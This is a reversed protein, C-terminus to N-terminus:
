IQEFCPFLTLPYMQLIKVVPALSPLNIKRLYKIGEPFTVFMLISRQESSIIRRSDVCEFFWVLLHFTNLGARWFSNNLWWLSDGFLGCVLETKSNVNCRTGLEFSSPRM